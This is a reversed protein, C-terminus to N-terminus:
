TLRSVTERVLSAARQHIDNEDADSGDESIHRVAVRLAASSLGLLLEAQDALEDPTLGSFSPDDSIFGQVAETLSSAFQTLKAFQDALLQPHRRIIELRGERLKASSASSGTVSLLLHVIAAPVDQDPQRQAREVARMTEELPQRGLIAADKSEFYNFFTRPSVEARESIADITTGDLGDRLVLDVAARELRVRTERRKRDRLGEHQM